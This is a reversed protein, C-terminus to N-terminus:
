SPSRAGLDRALLDAGRKDARIRGPLAVALRLERHRLRRHLAADAGCPDARPVLAAPQRHSGRGHRPHHRRDHLRHDLRHHHRAFAPVGSRRDGGRLERLRRFADGDYLLADGPLESLDFLPVPLEDRRPHRARGSACLPLGAFMERRARVGPSPPSPSPIVSASMSPFSRLGAIAAAATAAAIM